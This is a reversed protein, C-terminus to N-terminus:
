KLKTLFLPDLKIALGLNTLPGLAILDLEGPQENVLRVLAASAHEEEVLIDEYGQFLLSKLQQYESRQTFGGLGDGGHGPWREPSFIGQILPSSGKYIPIKQNSLRCLRKANMVGESLDVNGEVVTFGVIEIDNAGFAVIISVIDDIGADTDIILKRM